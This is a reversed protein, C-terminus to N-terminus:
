APCPTAGLATRADDLIRMVALTADLPMVPSETAGQRVRDRVERLEAALAQKPADDIRVEEADPHKRVTLSRAAHFPAAIDIRGDTGTIGANTPLTGILSTEAFARVGGPWTMLLGADADVGTKGLSGTVHVFEPEGLLLHALAVPYVGR